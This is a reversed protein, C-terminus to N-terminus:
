RKKSDLEKLLNKIYKSALEVTTAKSPISVDDHYYQPILLSLEQIAVNMRNRRGQEAVKHSAKKTPMQKSNSRSLGNIKPSDSGELVPSTDSSSSSKPLIRSSISSARSSRPKTHSNNDTQQEALRGMTFGMMTAAPTEKKIEVKKSQPPLMPTSENSTRIHSHQSSPPPQFQSQSQDSTPTGAAEPLKDFPSMTTLPSKVSSSSPTGSKPKVMPSKKSRSSTNNSSNNALLIPTGHPTRRKSSTNLKPEDTPGYLSSSTRRKDQQANLAPSTLPEFVAQLPPFGAGSAGSKNLNVQTELPTVAPSVLPTFIADPRIHQSQPQHQFTSSLLGDTSNRHNHHKHFYHQDNYSKENQGPLIPSAFAKPTHEVLRQISKNALMSPTQPPQISPPFATSTSAGSISTSHHHLEEGLLLMNRRIQPMHLNTQSPPPPPQQQQHHHHHHFQQQSRSHPLLKQRNQQHTSQTPPPQNYSQGEQYHLDEPLIFHLNDFTQPTGRSTGPGSTKISPQNSPTGSNSDYLNNEIQQLFYQDQESFNAPTNSQSVSASRPGSANSGTSAPPPPVVSPHNPTREDTQVIQENLDGFFMERDPPSFTSSWDHQEM